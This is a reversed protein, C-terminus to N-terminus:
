SKCKHGVFYNEDCRFYLGQEKRAKLKTDSLHRYPVEKKNTPQNSTLTITRVPNPESPKNFPKLNLSPHFSKQAKSHPPGIINQIAMDKDEIRQAAKMIQALGM